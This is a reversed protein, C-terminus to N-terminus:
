LIEPNRFLLYCIAFLVAISCKQTASSSQCQNKWKDGGGERASDSRVGFIIALFGGFKSRHIAQEDVCTYPSRPAKLPCPTSAPRKLSSHLAKEVLTYLQTPGKSPGLLAIYPGESLQLFSDLTVQFATYRQIPDQFLGTFRYQAKALGCLAIYPGSVLQM